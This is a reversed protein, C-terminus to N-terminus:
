RREAAWNGNGMASSFLWSRNSLNRRLWMQEPKRSSYPPRWIHASGYNLWLQGAIAHDVHFNRIVSSRQSSISQSSLTLLGALGADTSSRAQFCYAEEERDLSKLSANPPLVAWHNLSSEDSIHWSNSLFLSIIRLWNPWWGDWNLLLKPGSGQISGTWSHRSSCFSYRVSSFLHVIPRWINQHFLYLRLVESHKQVFRFRMPNDFCFGPDVTNRLSFERQCYHM